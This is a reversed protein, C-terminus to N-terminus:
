ELEVGGPLLTPRLRGGLRVPIIETALGTQDDTEVYVACFTAPGEAPELRSPMKRIFRSIAGEKKMGIVSDYDGCMGVDSIYGTGGPLVQADATPVHTHTGAVFSVRGDLHHGFAMKESTGEGHLDVFIVDVTAGLRFQGLIRDIVAFPDDLPDMFLRGMVQVVLVKRGSAATAVVAGRGPTGEPFNAPRVLAPAADIASIIERQDWVHNGTTIVDAGADLLEQYIKQTIGFGHAANEGNVIVMDLRLAARLKALSDCVVKRGARGVIDGCYLLRM